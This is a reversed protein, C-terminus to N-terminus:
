KFTRAVRFGRVNSYDSARKASRDTSRLPTSFIVFGNGGRSVHDCSAKGQRASGDDPADRYDGYCDKVWEEVNGSMDYLGFGNARKGAVPHNNYGTWFFLLDSSWGFKALEDGGCYREQKGGSRCAYEWESESPLRFLEGGNNNNLKQIFMGSENWTINEVPHNKQKYRSPNNGMVNEWQAQTVETRGLWFGQIKVQRAPKENDNCEGAWAGSCGMTFTGGPIWMFDIGSYPDTWMDGVKPEPRIASVVPSAKLTVSGEAEGGGDERVRYNFSVAGALGESPATYTLNQGDKSIEVAGQSVFGVSVIRLRGGQAAVDNLLVPLAYSKGSEVDWRDDVTRPPKLPSTLARGPPLFYVPLAGLSSDYVPLQKEKTERRVEDQVEDLIDRVKVGPRLMASLLRHTFVSHPESAPGESATAGLRTAFATLSRKGASVPQVGAVGGKVGRIYPNNRCADIIVIDVGDRATEMRNLVQEVSLTRHRLTVEDVHISLDVPALYGNQGQVGHGSYYFLGQAGSVALQKVFVDLEREMAEGSLNERLTVRYGLWTLAAAMSRADQSPKLLPADPYASNGIVLAMRKEARAAALATEDIAPIAISPIRPPADAHAPAACAIAALAMFAILLRRMSGGFLGNM